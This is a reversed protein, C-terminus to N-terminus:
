FTDSDLFAYQDAGFELDDGNVFDRAIQLEDVVDSSLTTTVAQDTSLSHNTLFWVQVGISLLIAAAVTFTIQKRLVAGKIKREIQVFVKAPLPPVDALEKYFLDEDLM